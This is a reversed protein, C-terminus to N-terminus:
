GGRSTKPSGKVQTLFTWRGGKVINVSFDSLDTDGNVDFGWKGLVGDFSKISAVTQLMLARNKIGATKIASLAVTMAEYGYIAYDGERGYKARYRKLFDQGKAPLKSEDIGALTAYVGEAKTGAERIFRDDIIGDGGILPAKIGGDRLDVLLKSLQSQSIGGFIIGDPAKAKIPALLYKYDIEVGSISVREAIQIGLKKAEESFNDVLAKGYPQSDDILYVKKLKLSQVFNALALGQIDDAIVVRFFNRKGSPYYTEPEAQSCDSSPDPRTLCPLQNAPSIMTLGARNLIPIAVKAAGNNLTGLYFMADSDNAAKTANIKEQEADWQGTTPSADDLSVYDIIFDGIKGTGKTFDDLAMKMANVVSQGQERSVGTLPLSSYIRLTGTRIPTPTATPAPTPTPAPTITPAPTATPEPTATPPPVPTATPAPVNDSGCAVLLLSMCSIAMVLLSASKLKKKM